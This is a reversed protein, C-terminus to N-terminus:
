GQLKKEKIKRQSHADVLLYMQFSPFLGKTGEGGQFAKKRVTTEGPPRKKGKAQRVVCSVAGDGSPVGQWTVHYM